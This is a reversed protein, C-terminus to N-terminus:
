DKMGLDILNFTKDKENIYFFYRRNNKIHVISPGLKFEKPKFSMIYNTVKEFGTKEKLSPLPALEPFSMKTHLMYFDQEFKPLRSWSYFNAGILTFDLIATILTTPDYTSFPTFGKVQVKPFRMCLITFTIEKNKPDQKDIYLAPIGGTINHWFKEDAKEAMIKGSKYSSCKSQGAIKLLNEQLLKNQSLVKGNEINTLKLNIDNKTTGIQFLLSDMLISNCESVNEGDDFEYVVFRNKGTKFNLFLLQSIDGAEVSFIIDDKSQMYMKMGTFANFLPIENDNPNYDFGNMLVKKLNGKLSFSNVYPNKPSDFRAVKLQNDGTALLYLHNDYFLFNYLIDGKEFPNLVIEESLKGTKKNVQYAMFDHINRPFYLSFYEENDTIGYVNLSHKFSTKLPVTHIINNDKDLLYILGKNFGQTLFACTMGNDDTVVQMQSLKTLPCEVSFVKDQALVVNPKMGIILAFWLIIIKVKLMDNKNKVQKVLHGSLLVAGSQGFKNGIRNLRTAHPRQKPICPGSTIFERM